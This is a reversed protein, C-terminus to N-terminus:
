TNHLVFSAIQWSQLRMFVTQVYAKFYEHSLYAAEDRDITDYWPMVLADLSSNQQMLTAHRWRKRLRSTVWYFRAHSRSTMVNPQSDRKQNWDNLRANNQSCKHMENTM